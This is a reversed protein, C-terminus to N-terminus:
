KYCDFRIWSYIYVAEGHTFILFNTQILNYAWCTLGDLVVEGKCVRDEVPQSSNRGGNEQKDVM